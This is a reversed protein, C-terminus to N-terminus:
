KKEVTKPLNANNQNNLVFMAASVGVIIVYGAVSLINPVDGFIFFGLMAAFIIQTYDYVSIERAPAHSYAATITFQGMAASIGAGLLFMWQRATMPSFSFILYPLSILCSFASFFFVIVAGKEGNRTLKRVYTYAIGAGMGGAAGILSAPEFTIAGPQIVFLAGTFAIIVAAAQYPKVREKLIFYSFIVAFFPSLKNLISADATMLKGIAYFNCFIGISGFVSRLILDRTNERKWRFGAGSKVLVAAAIIVAVANRFFSKQIFPVDGSLRVFVSMLAFSFASMIIFIIGKTKESM